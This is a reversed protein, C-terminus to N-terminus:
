PGTGMEFCIAIGSRHPLSRNKQSELVIWIHQSRCLVDFKVSHNGPLASEDVM